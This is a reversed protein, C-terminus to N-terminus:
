PKEYTMGENKAINNIKYQIYWIHFFFLMYKNIEIEDYVEELSEKMRFISYYLLGLFFYTLILDVSDLMYLGVISLVFEGIISFIVSLSLYVTALIWWKFPIYNKKNILQFDSRLSLFWYGIYIGITVISLLVVLGINKKKFSHINEKTM